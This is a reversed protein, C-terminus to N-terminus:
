VNRFELQTSEASTLIKLFIMRIAMYYIFTPINNVIQKDMEEFCQLDRRLHLDRLSNWRCWAIHNQWVMLM